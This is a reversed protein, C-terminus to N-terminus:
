VAMCCGCVLYFLLFIIFMYSVQIQLVYLCIDDRHCEISVRKQISHLLEHQTAEIGNNSSKLTTWQPSKPTSKKTLAARSGARSIKLQSARRLTTLQDRDVHSSMPKYHKHYRNIVCSSVKTINETSTNGASSCMCCAQIIEFTTLTSLSM